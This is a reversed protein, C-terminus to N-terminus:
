DLPGPGRRLHAVIVFLALAAAVIAGALWDWASPRLPRSASPGSALVCGGVARLATRPWYHM